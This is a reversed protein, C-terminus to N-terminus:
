RHMAEQLPPVFVLVGFPADRALHFEIDTSSLRGHKRLHDAALYMVKRTAGACTTPMPPQTFLGIGWPFGPYVGLHLQRAPRRPQQLRRQHRVGRDAGRDQGLGTPPGPLGRPPRIRVSRAALQVRNLAPTFVKAVQRLWTVSKPMVSAERRETKARIFVGAGVLTCGPRYAHTDSPEIVAIRLDRTRRLLQAVVTIRAADGGGIVVCFSRAPGAVDNEPADM